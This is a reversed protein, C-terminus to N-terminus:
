FSFFSLGVPVQYLMWSAALEFSKLFHTSISLYNLVFFFKGFSDM